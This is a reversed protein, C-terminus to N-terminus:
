HAYCDLYYIGFLKAKIIWQSYGVVYKSYTNRNIIFCTNLYETYFFINGFCEIINKSYRDLYHFYYIIILLLKKISLTSKRYIKLLKFTRM